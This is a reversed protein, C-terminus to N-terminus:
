LETVSSWNGIGKGGSWGSTTFVNGESLILDETQGWFDGGLDSGWGTGTSNPNYRCFIVSTHSGQKECGYYDSAGEVPTLEVWSNGSGGYFYAAFRANGDSWGGDPRLYIYNDKVPVGSPPPTTSTSQQTAETYDSGVTMVYIRSEIIDIYIDIPDETAITTDNSGGITVWKNKEIGTIVSSYSYAWEGNMRIKWPTFSPIDTVNKAVYLGAKVKEMLVDNQWENFNGVIGYTPETGWSGFPDNWSSWYYYNNNEDEPLSVDTIQNWSNSEELNDSSPNMRWFDFTNINEPIEVTYYGEDGVNLKHVEDNYKVAFWANDNAWQGPIFNITVWDYVTITYSAEGALFDETAPASATITTEGAGLITVAGTESNVTAVEENSSAYTVGSTEGSLTPATFTDGLTLTVSTESFTLDRAAPYKPTELVADGTNDKIENDHGGVKNDIRGVYSSVNHQDVSTYSKYNQTNDVVVKVNEGITNGTVVAYDDASTNNIACGAIGGLDRYGKITTSSVTNDTVHIAYAYGVIGGAKDGNDYEEGVLEAALTVTSNTVKCNNISFNNNYNAGDAWGVIVGAYHNGSIVANDFNVNTVDGDWKHGFFGVGEQATAKLNSITYNESDSKKGDFNGRFSKTVGDKMNGIPTWDKTMTIDAVLKVTKGDFTNGEKVQDALWFLGAENSIEYVGEYNLYVGDAVTHPDDLNSINYVTNAELTKGGEPTTDKVLVDDLYVKINTYTVPAIAIYYDKGAVFGDECTLTVTNAGNETASLTGGNFVPTNEDEMELNLQVKAEGAIKGGEVSVKVEKVDDENITIRLLSYLNTFILNDSESYKSTALAFTANADFGGELAVQQVPINLGTIYNRDYYFFDCYANEQYPYLAVVLPDPQDNQPWVFEGDYKFTASAAKGDEFTTATEDISFCRNNGEDTDSEKKNSDFVSIQDGETWYTKLGDLVTKTEAGFGAIITMSENEQTGLDPEVIEEQCSSAAFIAAAAFIISYIKKMANM